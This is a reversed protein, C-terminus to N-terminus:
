SDSAWRTKEFNLGGAFTEYAAECSQLGTETWGEVANPKATQGGSPSFPKLSSNKCKKPEDQVGGCASGFFQVLPSLVVVKLRCIQLKKQPPTAVMPKAFSLGLVGFGLGVPRLLGALCGRLQTAWVERSPQPAKQRTKPACFDRLAAACSRLAAASEPAAAESTRLGVAGHTQLPQAECTAFWRRTLKPLSRHQLAAKRLNKRPRGALCANASFM